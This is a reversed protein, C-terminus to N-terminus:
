EESWKRENAKEDGKVADEFSLKGGAFVTNVNVLCQCAYQGFRLVLCTM